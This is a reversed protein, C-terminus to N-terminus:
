EGHGGGEAVRAAALLAAAEKRAQEPTYRMGFEADVLQGSVWFREHTGVWMRPDDDPELEAPDSLVPEPLEVIAHGATTLADVVHAAHLESLSLDRGDDQIDSYDWECGTCSGFGDDLQHRAIIQQPASM